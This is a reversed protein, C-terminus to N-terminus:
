GQGNSTGGGCDGQDRDASPHLTDVHSLIDDVTDREVIKLRETLEWVLYELRGIRGGRHARLLDARHSADLPGEADRAILSLEPLASNASSEMVWSQFASVCGATAAVGLVMWVGCLARGATSTPYLDGFGITTCTIVSFYFGDTLSFGEFFMVIGIGAGLAICVLVAHVLFKTGHEQDESDDEKPAGAMKRRRAAVEQAHALAHALLLETLAGLAVAIVAVALVAYAAVILKGTNTKPTIDGYGVTTIILLAFYLSEDWTWGEVFPFMV